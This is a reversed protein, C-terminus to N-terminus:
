KSWKFTDEFLDELCEDSNDIGLMEYSGKCIATIISALDKHSDIQAIMEGMVGFHKPYGKLDIDHRMDHYIDMARQVLVKKMKELKNM